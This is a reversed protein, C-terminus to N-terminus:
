TRARLRAFLRQQEVLGSVGRKPTAAPVATSFLDQLQRRVDDDTLAALERRRLAGMEVGARRWTQVWRRVIDDDVSP